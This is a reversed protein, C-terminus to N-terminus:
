LPFGVTLVAYRLVSRIVGSFGYSPEGYTGFIYSFVARLDKNETLENVVDTLSRPAMKFFFSLHRLLGTHVLFKALPLPLIKLLALFWVGNGTKQVHFVCHFFTYAFYDQRRHNCIVYM